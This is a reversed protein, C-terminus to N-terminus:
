RSNAYSESGNVQTLKDYVITIFYKTTTTFDTDNDNM